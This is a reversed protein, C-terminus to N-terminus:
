EVDNRSSLSGGNNYASANKLNSPRGLRNMRINEIADLTDPYKEILEELFKTIQGKLDGVSCADLELCNFCLYDINSSEEIGPLNEAGLRDLTRHLVAAPLKQASRKM